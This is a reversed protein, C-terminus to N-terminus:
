TSLAISIIVKHFPQEFIAVDCGLFTLAIADIFKTDKGNITNMNM